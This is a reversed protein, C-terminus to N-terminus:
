YLEEYDSEPPEEYKIPEPERSKPECYKRYQDVQSPGSLSTPAFAPFGAQQNGYYDAVLDLAKKADQGFMSEAAIKVSKWDGNQRAHAYHGILMHLKYAENEEFDGEDSEAITSLAQELKTTFDLM